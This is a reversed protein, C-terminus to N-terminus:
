GLRDSGNLKSKDLIFPAVVTHRKAKIKTSLLGKSIKMQIATVLYDGPYKYDVSIVDGLQMSPDGKVEMEISTSYGAQKQLIDTAFLDCNRYSGFFNNDKIELVMDGFKERSEQDYAEYNITDVVKAPQGWLELAAVSVPQDNTNTFTVKYSTQFLEGVASIKSSVMNGSLDKADFWSSTRMGNLILPDVQWAPDTLSLWVELKGRAPIRWRDNDASSSFGRENEISFIPQLSQVARVESAIKVHNVLGSVRNPKISIINHESFSMVADRGLVGSRTAFRIIGQEDLWLSGNEAQVLKRLIDGAKDGKNFVVFPIINQGADLSYQDPTMGYQQLIVAIVKDTSVDRLKVANRLGQDAIESLFDIATWRLITTDDSYNPMGQTTGVFVPVKEATQFGMYLRLPRKPLVLSAIPSVGTSEESYSFFGDYNNLAVDAISAQVNYPFEFSREFHMDIVRSSVDMYEYADWVQTPNNDKTALIDNGDLASQNLTFWSLDARRKKSFSVMAKWDIPVISGQALTHFRDTTTQM